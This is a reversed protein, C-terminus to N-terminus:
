GASIGCARRLFEDHSPLKALPEQKIARIGSLMDKLQAESFNDALPHYDRPLVGQGLMVQLWSADHFLDHQERFISGDAQFLEIKHKLSDPIQLQRMDRWFQSDTRETVHYHLLLFDRIYVFEAESQKNYEAVTAPEIGNHPFMKLLRVIGSQVLHISTSELPELFGSALGVALVNHHWQKRARGTKFKILKPEALATSQLNGMLVDLAQQETYHASCFVLGNGNRHQLPIRWQWGAQHAIARTYPLTQEFRETPVAWARDCPLFHSWDDYGVGLKRQLLLSIFGSCDIFFDGKVERGDNLLLSKIHGNHHQTVQDVIGETRVVGMPESFKRLFAAYLGADFHYAYPLELIPDKATISAFKGAEACLYNLDYQWIPTMDGLQQRAKLWLHHFHCFTLSRGPAGFSHYYSDGQTRWNEFKIALKITAKTERLFQAENIGLVQNLVRIPPITAEGVGVTGIADSEVLEIEVVAGLVKKLLAASLWGATGGGLIVVKKIPTM